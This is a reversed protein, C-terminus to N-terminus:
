HGVNQVYAFRSRTMVGSILVLPCHNPHVPITRTSPLVYVQIPAGFSMAFAVWVAASNVEVLLMKVMCASLLTEILTENKDGTVGFSILRWDNINEYMCTSTDDM